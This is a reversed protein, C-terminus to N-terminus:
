ARARGRATSTPRWACSARAPASGWGSGTCTRTRAGVQARQSGLIWAARLPGARVPVRRERRRRRDARHGPQLLGRPRRRDVGVARRGDGRRGGRGRDALALAAGLGLRRCCRPSSRSSSRVGAPVYVFMGGRWSPPTRRRSSTATREAPLRPAAGGARTSRSRRARAHLRRHRGAGRRPAHGRRRGAARGPRRELRRGAGARALRRPQRRRVLEWRTSTWSRCTPSSGARTRRSRCHPAVRVRGAARATGDALETRDCDARDGGSAM